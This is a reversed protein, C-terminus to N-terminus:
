VRWTSLRESLWEPTMTALGAAAEPGTGCETFALSAEAAAALIGGLRRAADLRTPVLHRCGLIHFARATEVAEDPDLGAPLVLIATGGAAQTLAAQRRVGADDFPDCGPMDVLAAQGPARAALAKALAAPTTAVALPLNLVRAFAALQEAAGARRGDASILLPPTSALVLRTALKACTLTKGGGPPGALLIPSSGIPLCAFRFTLAIRSALPAGALREALGVPINHRRLVAPVAAIHNADPTIMLPEDDADQGATVEVGGPVRRTALIVAEEGLEARLAAIADSVRAAQITRLRM